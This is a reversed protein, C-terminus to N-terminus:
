ERSKSERSLCAPLWPPPIKAWAEACERRRVPIHRQRIRCAFAHGAIGADKQLIDENMAHVMWQGTEARM